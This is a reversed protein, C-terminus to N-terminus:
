ASGSGGGGGGGGGGGSSGGGGGGDSSLTAEAADSAAADGAGAESAAAESTGEWPARGVPPPPPPGGFLGESQLRADVAACQDLFKGRAAAAAAGAAHAGIARGLQMASLVALKRGAASVDLQPSRISGRLDLPLMYAPDLGRVGALALTKAPLGIRMRMEDSGADVTGWVSVRVRDGILMDVRHTTLLGHDIDVEMVGTSAEVVKPGGGWLLGPFAGGIGFLGGANLLRLLQALLQGEGLAVRLPEVRLTGGACPLAGGRPAFSVALRGGDRLRLADHLLPNVTALSMSALQPTLEARAAAPRQLELRAGSLWGRVDLSLRESDLLLVSPRRPGAAGAAPAAQDRPAAADAGGGAGAGAGRAEAAMDIVPGSQATQPKGGCDLPPAALLGACDLGMEAALGAVEKGGVAVSAHLHRGVAESLLAPLLFRGESVVAQVRPSRVELSFGSSSDSVALRRRLEGVAREVATQGSEPAAAAAAPVPAPAEGAAHPAGGSSHSLGAGDAGGAAAGEAAEGAEAGAAENSSDEDGRLELSHSAVAAAGGGGGDGDAASGAAGAAAPAPAPAPPPMLMSLLSAAKFHSALRLDLGSDDLSMDISPESVTLTVPGGFVVSYMPEATTARGVSLLRRGGGGRADFLEVGEVSLPSVWDAQIRRVRVDGPLARSAAAALLRTGQATSLLPPVAAALLALAAAAQVVAQLCHLVGGFGGGGAASASAGAAALCVLMQPGLGRERLRAACGHFGGQRLRAIRGSARDRLAAAVPLPPAVRAPAAGGSACRAAAAGAAPERLLNGALAM